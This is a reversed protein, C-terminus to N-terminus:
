LHYTVKMLCTQTKTNICHLNFITNIIIKDKQLREILDNREEYLKIHIDTPLKKLYHYVDDITLSKQEFIDHRRYEETRNNIFITHLEYLIKKYVGTLRNYLEGHKKNRTYHYINLIERALTKMSINIRKVVDVHYQSIYPLIENLRDNKYLDLYCIHINDYQPISDLIKRYMPNEIYIYRCKGDFICEIEYGTFILRKSKMSQKSDMEIDFLLEDLCSFKINVRDTDKMRDTFRHYVHKDTKYRASHVVIKNLKTGSLTNYYVDDKDLTEIDIYSIIPSRSLNTINHNYYLLWENDHYFLCFEIGPIKEYIQCQSWNNQIIEYMTDNYDEILNEYAIINGTEIDIIAYKISHILNDILKDKHHLQNSVIDPYILVLRGYRIINIHNIKSIEIRNEIRNLLARILHDVTERTM